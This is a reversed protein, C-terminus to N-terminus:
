HLCDSSVIYVAWKRNSTLQTYELEFFFEFAQESLYGDADTDFLYSRGQMNM